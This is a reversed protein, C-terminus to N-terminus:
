PPVEFGELRAAEALRSDFTVLQRGRPTDETWALAAALQLADAARLPHIRVLRLARERVAESATVTSWVAALRDLVALSNREDDATFGGDRRRRAFASACEVVTGWWVIM